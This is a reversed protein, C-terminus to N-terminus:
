NNVDVNISIQDDVSEQKNITIDELEKLKPLDDLSNLAFLKLFEDTTSYLLSKGISKSRGAIRILKKELLSNVVENSNVGRIEEVSPKSIPQKYAIISLSELAARSLKKKSKQNYLKAVYNGFENKIGFQYGGAYNLITFARNEIELEKNISSIIDIFHAESWSFDNFIISTFELHALPKDQKGNKILEKDLIDKEFLIEFLTKIDLPEASSFIIAEIAQRKQNESLTLFYPTFKIM